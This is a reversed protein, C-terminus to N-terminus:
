LCVFTPLVMEGDEARFVDCGHALIMMYRTLEVGHELIRPFSPENLPKLDAFDVVVLLITSM